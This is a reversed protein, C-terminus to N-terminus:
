LFIRKQVWIQRITIRIVLYMPWVTSSHPNKVGDRIWADSHASGVLTWGWLLAFQCLMSVTPSPLSPLLYAASGKQNRPCSASTNYSLAFNLFLQVKQHFREHLFFLQVSTTKGAGAFCPM